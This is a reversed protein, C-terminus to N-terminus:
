KQLLWDLRDMCSLLRSLITEPPIRELSKDICQRNKQQQKTKTEDDNANEMSTLGVLKGMQRM